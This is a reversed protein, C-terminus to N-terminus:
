ESPRAVGCANVKRAEGRARSAQATRGRLRRVFRIRVKQGEKTRGLASGATDLLEQACGALHEAPGSAGLLDDLIMPLVKMALVGRVCLHGLYGMLAGLLGRRDERWLVQGDESTLVVRVRLGGGLRARVLAGLTEGLPAAAPVEFTGLDGGSIAATCRVLAPGGAGCEKDDPPLHACSVVLSVGALAPDAPECSDLLREFEDQCANLLLRPFTVPSEGEAAAPLEPLLASLLPVLEALAERLDPRLLAHSLLVRALHSMDKWAHCQSALQKSISDLCDAKAEHLLSRTKREFEDEEPDGLHGAAATTEAM